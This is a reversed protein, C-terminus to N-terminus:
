GRFKLTKRLANDLVEDAKKNDTDIIHSEISTKNILEEFYYNEANVEDIVENLYKNRIFTGKELFRRYAREYLVEPSAKLYILLTRIENENLKDFLDYDIASVYPEDPFITNPDSSAIKSDKNHQIAM